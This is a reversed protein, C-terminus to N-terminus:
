SGQFRARRPVSECKQSTSTGVNLVSYESLRGLLPRAHHPLHLLLVGPCFSFGEGLARFGLGKVRFGSGQVRFGLGQVRM